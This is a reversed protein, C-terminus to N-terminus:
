AELYVGLLLLAGHGSAVELKNGGHELSEVDISLSYQEDFHNYRQSDRCSTPGELFLM